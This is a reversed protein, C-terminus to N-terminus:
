SLRLVTARYIQFRFEKREKRNVRKGEHEEHGEHDTSRWVLDLLVLIFFRIEVVALSVDRLDMQFRAMM